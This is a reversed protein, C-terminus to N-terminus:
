RLYYCNFYLNFRPRHQQPLCSDKHRCAGLEICSDRSILQAITVLWTLLVPSVRAIRWTIVM